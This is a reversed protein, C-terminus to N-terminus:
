EADIGDIPFKDIVKFPTCFNNSFILIELAAPGSKIGPLISFMNAGSNAGITCAIKVWLRPVPSSGLSQDQSVNCWNELFAVFTQSLVVSWNKQSTNGTLKKFVNDAPVNQVMNLVVFNECVELM